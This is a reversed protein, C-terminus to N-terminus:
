YCVTCCQPAEASWLTNCDVRFDDLGLSRLACIKAAVEGTLNNDQVSNEHIYFWHLTLLQLVTVACDITM